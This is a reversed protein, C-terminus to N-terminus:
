TSWKSGFKPSDAVVPVGNECGLFSVVIEFLLYLVVIIVKLCGAGLKGGQQSCVLCGAICTLTDGTALVM